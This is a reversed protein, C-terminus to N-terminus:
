KIFVFPRIQVQGKNIVRLFYTGNGLDDIRMGKSEEANMNFEKQVNGDPSLVSIIMEGSVEGEFELNIEGISPNPYISYELITPPLLNAVCSSPADETWDSSSDGTGDYEIVSGTAFSPV